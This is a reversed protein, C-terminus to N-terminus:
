GLFGTLLYMGMEHALTKAIQLISRKNWNGSVYKHGGATISVSREPNLCLQGIGDAYGNLCSTESCISQYTLFLQMDLPAGMETNTLQTIEKMEKKMEVKSTYYLDGKHISWEKHAWHM